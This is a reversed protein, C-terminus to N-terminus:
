RVKVNVKAGAPLVAGPAPSQKAVRASGSRRGTVKGLKCNAGTLARRAPNLGKGKLRPVVCATYTFKDEERVTPSSGALSSVSVDVTGPVSAPPAIATIQSDSNVTFSSAPTPGFKVASAATFNTGTITVTTGGAVSGATPAVSSITPAPQVEASLEIEEGSQTPRPPVTAGDFPTPFISAFASGGVTAFGIEDTANTPDVGILDGAKIPLNATFTQLGTGSVTAAGSTGEATYAGSGNPRLVRLYFPGGSAGQIRWRVIAGSVPSTLNAGKEPLTTNFLTMVEKFQKSATVPPLVSGVTLTSAQASVSGLLALASAAAFAVPALWRSRSGKRFDASPNAQPPMPM